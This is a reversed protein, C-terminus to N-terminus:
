ISLKIATFVTTGSSIKIVKDEISKLLYFLFQIDADVKPIAIKLDQNIATRINTIIPRGPSIRTALILSGADAISTSSNEVGKQSIHDITSELTEGKIDKISAWPINGEWYEVIRKSPTGGGKFTFIDGLSYFPWVSKLKKKDGIEVM